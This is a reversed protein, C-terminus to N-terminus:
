YAMLILAKIHLFFITITKDEKPPWGTFEADQKM